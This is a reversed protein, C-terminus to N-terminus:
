TEQPHIRKRVGEEPCHSVARNELGSLPKQLGMDHFLLHVFTTVQGRYAPLCTILLSERHQLCGLKRKIRKIPETAAPLGGYHRLQFTLTEEM